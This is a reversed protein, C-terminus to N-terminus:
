ERPEDEGFFKYFRSKIVLAIIQLMEGGLFGAGGAFGLVLLPSFGADLMIAGVSVSSAVGGLVGALFGTFSWAGAQDTLVRSAQAIGGIIAVLILMSITSLNNAVMEWWQEWPSKM